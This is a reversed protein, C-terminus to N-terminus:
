PLVCGAACDFPGLVKEVRDRDHDPHGAAHEAKEVRDLGHDPRAVVLEADDRLEVPDDEVLAWFLAAELWESLHFVQDAPLCV